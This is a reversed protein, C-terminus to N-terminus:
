ILTPVHNFATLLGGRPVRRLSGEVNRPSKDPATAAAITEKGNLMVIPTTAKAGSPWSYAM